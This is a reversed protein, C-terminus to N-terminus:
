AINFGMSSFPLKWKLHKEPEDPNSSTNNDYSYSDVYEVEKDNVDLTGLMDTGNDTYKTMEGKKPAYNLDILTLEGFLSMKENLPYNAGISATYGVAVGGNNKWTRETHDGNTSNRNSNETFSGVGVTLGFKAYPNIKEMGSALIFTPSFRIMNSHVEDEWTIKETPSSYYEDTTESKGGLLYSVGLEAGINKNFMYGFSGGFNLGKGLSINVVEASGTNDANETNNGGSFSGARMGYGANVTVYASQASLNNAFWGMAIAMAFIVVYNKKM